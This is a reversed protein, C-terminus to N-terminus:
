GDVAEVMARWVIRASPWEGGDLIEQAGAESMEDSPALPVIVYGAVRLRSRLLAVSVGISSALIDGVRDDAM